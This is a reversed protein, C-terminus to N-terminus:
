NETTKPTFTVSYGAVMMTIPGTHELEDTYFGDHKGTALRVSVLHPDCDNGPSHGVVEGLQGVQEPLDSEVVRVRCGVPFRIAAWPENM